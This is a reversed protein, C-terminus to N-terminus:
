TKGTSLMVDAVRKIDAPALNRYFPLSISAHALAETNPLLGRPCATTAPHAHAGNGWWRKSEIDAAALEREVRAAGSESVSLVCTSSIWSQGFGEQFWLDNSELLAARYIRAVEIWEGRAGMWEDLAALGVAAHYESLKANV